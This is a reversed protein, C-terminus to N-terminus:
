SKYKRVKQVLWSAFQHNINFLMWNIKETLTKGSMKSYQSKVNKKIEKTLKAKFNVDLFLNNLERFYVARTEKTFYSLGKQEKCFEFRLYLAELWDIQSQMQRSTMISGKREYTYVYEENDICAIKQAMCMIQAVVYEDEHIKGIPFQIKEFLSRHYLKNWAVIYYWGLGEYLKPLLEQATFCGNYIPSDSKEFVREGAENVCKFSTIALKAGTEDIASYLQEIMTSEVYDDSDVFCFYEGAAMQMGVNRADSLGGNKKHIVKIRLDHAALEDCMKPCEDPSGDDVLIIEINRYTQHQISEVCRYLYQEVKYVPVIVSILSNM